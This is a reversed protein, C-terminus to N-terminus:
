SWESKERSTGMARDDERAESKEKGVHLVTRALKALGSENMSRAEYNIDIPVVLDIASLVGTYAQRGVTRHSGREVSSRRRGSILPNRDNITSPAYSYLTSRGITSAADTNSSPAISATDNQTTWTSKDRSGRDQSARPTIDNNPSEHQLGATVRSNPMKEDHIM